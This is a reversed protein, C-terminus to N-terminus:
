EREKNRSDIMHVLKKMPAAAAKEMPEGLTREFELQEQFTSGNYERLGDVSMVVSGRYLAGLRSESLGKNLCEPCDVSDGDPTTWKLLGLFAAEGNCFNRYQGSEENGIAFHFM